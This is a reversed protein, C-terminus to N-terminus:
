KKRDLQALAMALRQLPQFLACLIPPRPPGTLEISKRAFM